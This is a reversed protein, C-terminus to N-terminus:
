QKNRVITNGSVKFLKNGYRWCVDLKVEKIQNNSAPTIEFFLGFRYKKSGICREVYNKSLADECDVAGNNLNTGVDSYPLSKVAELQSYLINSAETFLARKVTYKEFYIVAALLGLLVIVAIVAAILVEILSFGKRVQM